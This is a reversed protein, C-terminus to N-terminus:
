YEVLEKDGGGDVYNKPFPPQIQQDNPNRPNKAERQRIQLPHPPNKRRFNPNRIQLENQERNLSGNDVSLKDM